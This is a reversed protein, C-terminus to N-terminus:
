TLGAGRRELMVVASGKYETRAFERYGCKEAVRLSARNEVGIICATRQPGHAGELWHLAAQAAETAYGRGHASRALVWGIEPVGKLSPEIDRKFDALGVDGVYRGTTNETVAWYGYGLMPWLGINRLLRTWSEEETSPRGIHRVVEPDGWAEMLHPFDELRYARLVLRETEITPAAHFAKRTM